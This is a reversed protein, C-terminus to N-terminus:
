EHIEFYHHGGTYWKVYRMKFHTLYINSTIACITDENGSWGGTHLELKRIGRYKRKLKFGWNDFYWGEALINVFDMIPMQNPEYNRIFELFEDTPYGENDLTTM